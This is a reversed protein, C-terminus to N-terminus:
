EGAPLVVDHLSGATLDVVMPSTDPIWGLKLEYRTPALGEVRFPANADLHLEYVRMRRGSPDVWYVPVLVKAAGEVAEVWGSLSVAPVCELAGLDLTQGAELHAPTPPLAARNGAPEHVETTVSLDRSFLWYAGPGILNAYGIVGQDDVHIQKSAEPHVLRLGHKGVM